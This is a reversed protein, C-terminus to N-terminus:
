SVKENSKANPLQISGSTCLYRVHIHDHYVEDDVRENQSGSAQKVLAGEWYVTNVCAREWGFGPSTGSSSEPASALQPMVGLYTIM